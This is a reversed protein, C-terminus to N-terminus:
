TSNVTPETGASRNEPRARWAYLGTGVFSWVVIPGCVAWALDADARDSTLVLAVVGAGCLLAAAIILRMRAATM